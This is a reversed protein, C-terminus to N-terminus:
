YSGPNLGAASFVLRGTEHDLWCHKGVGDTDAIVDFQSWRSFRRSVEDKADLEAVVSIQGAVSELQGAAVVLQEM